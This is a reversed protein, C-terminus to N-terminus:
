HKVNSIPKVRCRALWNEIEGIDFAIRRTGLKYVSFEGQKALSILTNRCLKTMKQLEYITIFQNIM